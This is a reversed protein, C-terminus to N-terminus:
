VDGWGTGMPHVSRCVKLYREVLGGVSPGLVDSDWNGVLVGKFDGLEIGNLIGLLFEYCMASSPDM